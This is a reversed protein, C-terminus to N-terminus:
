TIFFAPILSGLSSFFDSGSMFLKGIVLMFLCRVSHPYFVHMREDVISLFTCSSARKCIDGGKKRGIVTRYKWETHGVKSGRELQQRKRSGKWKMQNTMYSFNYKWYYRSSQAHTYALLMASVGNGHQSNGAKGKAKNLSSSSNRNRGIRAHAHRNIHRLMSGYTNVPPIPFYFNGDFIIFSMEGKWDSRWFINKM